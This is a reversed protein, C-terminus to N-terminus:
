DILEDSLCWTARAVFRPNRGVERTLEVLDCPNDSLSYADNTVVSRVASDVPFSFLRLRDRTWCDLVKANSDEEVGCSERLYDRGRRWGLKRVRSEFARMGIGDDRLTDNLHVLYSRVTQHFGHRRRGIGKDIIRAATLDSMNGIRRGERTYERLIGLSLSQTSLWPGWALFQLFWQDPTWNPDYGQRYDWREDGFSLDAARRGGSLYEIEAVLNRMGAVQLTFDRDSM